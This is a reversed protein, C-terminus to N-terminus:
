YFSYLIVTSSLCDYVYGQINVVAEVLQAVVKTDESCTGLSDTCKLQVPAVPEISINNHIINNMSTPFGPGPNM